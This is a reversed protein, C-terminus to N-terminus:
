SSGFLPRTYAGAAMESKHRQQLQGLTEETEALNTNAANDGEGEGAASAAAAAADGSPSSKSKKKGM